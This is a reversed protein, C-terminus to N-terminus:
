QTFQIDDVAILGQGILEISLAEVDDLPFPLNDHRFSSLPVRITSLVTKGGNDEYPYPVSQTGVVDVHVNATDGGASRLSVRLTKGADAPNQAGGDLIQSVRLAVADFSSVDRMGVPLQTEYVRTANWGLVLGDTDGRFSGNFTGAGSSRFSFEDFVSMSGSVTASGGLSNTNPGGADDFNDVELREIDQHSWYARVGNMGVIAAEGRFVPDFDTENNLHRRLFPVVSQCAVLQQLQPALRGGGVGDDSSCMFGTGPTWVTNFFNHNAGHVWLMSKESQMPSSALSTRDYTRIGQLNSVDGDSAAMLLFYPVEPVYNVLPDQDTPAIANVASISFGLSEVRNIFEAAVVGEGGRSHGSLGIRSMDIRGQFMGGWPDTGNNNWDDWLGLHRLVLRGRGEYDSMSASGACTVDFGDISVSVIGWSALVDLLYNYGLHNPIRDGAACAHSCSCPCTAHNGHLFVALPYVGDDPLDAMDGNAKAPYRVVARVDVDPYAAPGGGSPVLDFDDEFDYSVRGINHQGTVCANFTTVDPDAVTILERDVRDRFLPLVTIIEILGIQDVVTIEHPGTAAGQPVEFGVEANTDPNLPLDTGDFYLRVGPEASTPGIVNEVGVSVQEGRQVPDPDVSSISVCAGLMLAAPVPWLSRSIWKPTEM